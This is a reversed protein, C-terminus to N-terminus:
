FILTRQKEHKREQIKLVSYNLIETYIFRNQKTPTKKHTPLNVYKALYYRHFLIYIDVLEKM